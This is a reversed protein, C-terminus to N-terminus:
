ERLLGCGHLLQDGAGNRIRAALAMDQVFMTKRRAHHMCTNADDFLGAAYDEFSLRLVAIGEASLRKGEAGQEAGIAENVDRVVLDFARESLTRKQGRREGEMARARAKGAALGRTGPVQAAAAVTVAREAAAQAARAPSLAALGLAAHLGTAHPAM